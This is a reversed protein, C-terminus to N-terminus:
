RSARPRTLSLSVRRESLWAWVREFESIMEEHLAADAMGATLNVWGGARLRAFLWFHRRVEQQYVESTHADRVKLFVIERASVTRRRM